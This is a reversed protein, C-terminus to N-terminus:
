LPPQLGYRATPTSLHKRLLAKVHSKPWKSWDRLWFHILLCSQGRFTNNGNYYLPYGEPDMQGERKSNKREKKRQRRVIVM